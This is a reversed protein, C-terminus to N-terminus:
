SFTALQGRVAGDPFDPTHVNLYYATPDGLVDAVLAPDLGAQCATVRGNPRTELTIVVSGAAGAAGEHVHAASPAEDLAVYLGHCLATPDDTGLVFGNGGGTPHGPGPIEQDGTLRAVAIAGPVFLQGRIAGDPHQATHLNVYHAGPDALLAAVLDEDIGDACQAAFGAADTVASLPLVVDGAVGVPAAHVHAGTLALAEDLAYSYCLTDDYPTAHLDFAATATPHGPGPVEAAGGLVALPAGADGVAAAGAAADALRCAASEVSPGCVLGVGSALLADVTPTPVEDGATLLLARERGLAAAAFGAAWADRAQGDVLVVDVPDDYQAFALATATEFRTDGALREVTIGLARVEDLVADTIAAQGGAVAVRRVPAQTLYERTTATLQGSETLLVPAEEHAAFAGAGLSDAFAQTPDGESASSRVLVATRAEPLVATAVAIATETRTSGALRDVEYGAAMLQSAVADEIADPGGLLVVLEVDLRELEARVRPDLGDGGTLLLPAGLAGQAGGSSLADAFLDDRGLLAAPAGDPFTFASFAIATEVTDDARLTADIDAAAVGPVLLTALMALVAPLM